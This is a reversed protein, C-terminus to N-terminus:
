ITDIIPEDFLAKRVELAIPEIQDSPYRSLINDVSAGYWSLHTNHRSLMVCLRGVSFGHDVSHGPICAPDIALTIPWERGQAKDATMIQSVPLLPVLVSVAVTIQYNFAALVAIDTPEVKRRTGDLELWGDQLLRQIRDQLHQVVLFSDKTANTLLPQEVNVVEIEGVPQGALELQKNKRKSLFDFSYMHKVIDTTTPGLRWTENVSLHLAPKTTARMADGLRDIPKRGRVPTWLQHPVTIVPGIQGPDGVLIVHDALPAVPVYAAFTAQYAEDVILVHFHTRVPSVEQKTLTSFTVTGMSARKSLPMRPPPPTLTPNLIELLDHTDEQVTMDLDILETPIHRAVRTALEIVQNRTPTAVLISLNTYEVMNVIISTLLTTKGGGPPADVTIVEASNDIVARIVLWEPSDFDVREPQVNVQDPQTSRKAHAIQPPTRRM